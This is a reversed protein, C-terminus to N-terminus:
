GIRSNVSGTDDNWVDDDEHLWTTSERDRSDGAGGAGAGAGGMPLFPMGPGTGSRTGLSTAQGPLLGGGTGTGTGTGPTSSTTPTSYATSTPTAGPPTYGTTPTYDALTTPNTGTGSPNRNLGTTDVSPHTGGGTTTTSGRPGTTGPPYTGNPDIGTGDPNTLGTNPDYPSFSPGDTDGIGNPGGNLGSGDYSLPTFGGGGTDGTPYTIQLPGDETTTPPKLDRLNKEVKDPIDQHVRTLDNAFIQLHHGALEDQSGWKGTANNGEYYGTYTSYYDTISDNWSGLDQNVWTPMVGKWTDDIFEQHKTVVTALNEVPSHMAGLKNALEGMTVYLIGLATQAEVSAEGEWVQALKVAQEKIAERATNVAEQADKYSGAAQRISAANFGKIFTVVEEVNRDGTEVGWSGSGPKIVHTEQTTEGM